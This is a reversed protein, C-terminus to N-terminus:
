AKRKSEIERLFGRFLVVAYARVRLVTFWFRAKLTFLDHKILARVGNSTTGVRDIDSVGKGSFVAIPYDVRKFSFGVSILFLLFEFDGAAGFDCSFMRSNFCRRKFVMSQHCAIMGKYHEAPELAKRLGNRRANIVIHDGYYVDFLDDIERALKTLVDSGAFVDGANLFLLYQGTSMAIGKNMADYIGEDAESVYSNVRPNKEILFKSGDDSGGDVVIYEFNTYSQESLSNFTNQLGDKDNFNITIISLAKTM